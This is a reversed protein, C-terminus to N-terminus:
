QRRYSKLVCSLLKSNKFILKLTKILMINSLTNIYRQMLTPIKVSEKSIRQCYYIVLCVKAEEGFNVEWPQEVVSEDNTAQIDKFRQRGEYVWVALM